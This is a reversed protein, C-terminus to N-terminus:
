SYRCEYHFGSALLDGIVAEYNKRDCGPFTTVRSDIVHIAGLRIYVTAREASDPKKFGLIVPDARNFKAVIEKYTPVNDTDNITM